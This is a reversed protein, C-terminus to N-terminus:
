KPRLESSLILHLAPGVARGKGAVNPPPAIEFFVFAGPKADKPPPLNGSFWVQRPWALDSLLQYGEATSVTHAHSIFVIAEDKPVTELAARLQELADPIRLRQM